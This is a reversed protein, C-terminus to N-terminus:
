GGCSPPDGILPQPAPAWVSKPQRVMRAWNTIGDAPELSAVAGAHPDIGGIDLATKTTLIPSISSRQVLPM